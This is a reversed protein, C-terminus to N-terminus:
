QGQSPKELFEKVLPIIVEPLEELVYHGAEPFRHVDAQPFRKIWEELFDRDFVFDREGWCILM